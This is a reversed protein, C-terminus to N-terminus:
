ASVYLHPTSSSIPVAAAWLFRYIDSAVKSYKNQSDNVWNMIQDMGETIAYLEKTLSAVEIWYLLHEGLLLEDLLKFIKPSVSTFAPEVLHSIWYLCSYSLELSINREIRSLLDPVDRNMVCSTELGCINFRLGRLMIQLCSEALAANQEIVNTRYEKPCDNGTMFDGFSQHLMRVASHDDRYLISGLRNILRSLAHPKIRGALMGALAADPLPRRLGTLVIAGVCLRIISADHKAEGLGENLATTYIEGLAKEAGESRQGALIQKLTADPDLSQQILSCATRAWIFLRNSSASLKLIEGEDPWRDRGTTDAPIANMRSRVYALIDRSVSAEDVTFLNRREVGGQGPGLINRIEENPRSTVLVKLWSALQSLQLLCRVLEVRGDATGSEDIADVVVTSTKFDCRGISQIPTVILGAFRTKMPSDALKPDARLAEVLKAGYEPYKHALSAAIDSVVNEPKRLHESDRKCFFSGGLVGDNHLSESVSTSVASKGCGAPGYLWYLGTSGTGALAWNCIDDIIEMRTGELCCRGLDYGTGPVILPKLLAREADGLLTEVRQVTQIAVERDFSEKLRGFRSVFEDVQDQASSSVFARVTRVAAGDSKYEVVFRSAEEVLRLLEKLTDRLNGLKAHDEVAAVHPLVDGMEEVLKAVLADCQDQKRLTEWAHTFIKVVAKAVPNLEALSQGIKLITEVADRTRGLSELLSPSMAVRSNAENQANQAASHSDGTPVLTVSVAFPPSGSDDRATVSPRNNDMDQVRFNVSGVRDRKKGFWHLEYVRIELSENQDVDIPNIGEWRLPQGSKIAELNFLLRGNSLLKTNIPYQSTTSLEIKISQIRLRVRASSQAQSAPAQM